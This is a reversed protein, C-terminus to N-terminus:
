SAQENAWGDRIKYGSELNRRKGRRRFTGECSLGIQAAISKMASIGCGGDLMVAGTDNDRLMGYLLGESHYIHKGTKSASPKALTRLRNQYRDEIFDGLASGIMDYGGGRARYRKGTSPDTLTVLTWGYTDRGRCRGITLILETYM